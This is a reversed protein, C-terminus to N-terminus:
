KVQVLISIGAITDLEMAERGNIKAARAPPATKAAVNASHAYWPVV